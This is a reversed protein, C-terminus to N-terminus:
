LANVEVPLAFAYGYRYLPHVEKDWGAPSVDVMCGHPMFPLVSGEAFMKCSKRRAQRITAPSSAWGDRTVIEFYANEFSNVREERSPYMLSLLCWMSKKSGTRRIQEWVGEPKVWEPKFKGYGLSRMGGLGCEGLWAFAGALQERVGEDIIDVLCYLGADKSFVITGAHFLGAANTMRDLQVRPMRHYVTTAALTEKVPGVLEMDIAQGRTWRKFVELSVFSLRRLDKLNRTNGASSPEDAATVPPILPKPLFYMDRNFPFGSSIKFPPTGTKFGELLKSTNDKGYLADWAHCLGGFLTDSCVYSEVAEMGIGAKGLHLPSEFKLKVLWHGM